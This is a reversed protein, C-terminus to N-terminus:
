QYQPPFAPNDGDTQLLDMVGRRGCYTAWALPTDGDGNEAEVEAGSDLLICVVDTYGNAAVIYLGYAPHNEVLHVTGIANTPWPPNVMPQWGEGLVHHAHWDQPAERNVFKPDTELWRKVESANGSLCSDFFVSSSSIWPFEKIYSESSVEMIGDETIIDGDSDLVVLTPIGSVNYMM